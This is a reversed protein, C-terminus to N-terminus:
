PEASDTFVGGHDNQCIRTSSGHIETFCAMYIPEQRSLISSKGSRVIRKNPPKACTEFATHDFSCRLRMRITIRISWASGFRTWSTTLSPRETSLSIRGRWSPWFNMAQGIMLLKVALQDLSDAALPLSSRGPHPDDGLHGVDKVYRRAVASRFSAFATSSSSDSVGLNCLWLRKCKLFRRFEATPRGQPATQRRCTDSLGKVAASTRVRGKVCITEPESSNPIKFSRGADACGIFVPFGRRRVM